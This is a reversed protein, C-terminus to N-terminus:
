RFFPFIPIIHTDACIRGVIEMGQVNRVVTDSSRYDVHLNRIRVWMGAKLGSM